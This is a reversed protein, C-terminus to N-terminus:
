VAAVAYAWSFYAVVVVIGLHVALSLGPGRVWRGLAGTRDAAAVRRGGGSRWRWVLMMGMVAAVWWLGVAALGVGDRWAPETGQQRAQPDGALLFVSWTIAALAGTVTHAHLVWPVPAPSSPATSAVEAGPRDAGLRDGGPQEVRADRLRGLRALRLQTGLVVLAALVTLATCATQHSM